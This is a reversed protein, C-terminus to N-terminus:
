TRVFINKKKKKATCFSVSFLHCGKFYTVGKSTLMAAFCLGVSVPTKETVILDIRTDPHNKKPSFRQYMPEWIQNTLSFRGIYTADVKKM